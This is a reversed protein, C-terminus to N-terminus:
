SGSPFVRLVTLIMDHLQKLYLKYFIYYYVIKGHELHDGSRIRNGSHFERDACVASALQRIYTTCMINAQM